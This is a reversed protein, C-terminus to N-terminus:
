REVDWFTQIEWSPKRGLSGLATGKSYVLKTAFLNQSTRNERPRWLFLGMPIYIHLLASTGALLLMTVAIICGILM